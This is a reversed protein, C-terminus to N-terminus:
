KSRKRQKPPNAKYDDCKEDYDFDCVLSVGTPKDTLKCVECNKKSDWKIYPCSM